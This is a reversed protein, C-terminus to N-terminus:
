KMEGWNLGTKANVVLPVTLDCVKEMAPICRKAVEAVLGKKVELLLEDHVQLLMRARDGYDALCHAVAFMALKVIDSATGQIPMNIAMREAGGRVGFTSSNIEPLNRRRGFLTEVYGHQKTFAVIDAMYKKVAPHKAFYRDIYEKAQHRELRLTQALGHASMGYVIGFNVVKAVRRDDPTVEELKKGFIQAAVSSHIDEQRRFSEQLGADQSFHALVRLDIQSYDLSLLEYGPAAIFARRIKQGEDSRIPINQLNPNSSSLRGTATVTQNFSTHLRGDKESVLEPLADLYTNKLKSLERFVFIKDVIEHHPRLKELEPAATSYGTKTKKIGDTPLKLKEFLIHRLQV